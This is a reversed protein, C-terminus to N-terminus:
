GHHKFDAPIGVPRRSQSHCKSFLIDDDDSSSLSFYLISTLRCCNLSLKEGFLPSPDSVDISPGDRSRLRSRMLLFLLFYLSSRFLSFLHFVVIFSSLRIDSV